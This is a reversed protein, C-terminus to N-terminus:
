GELLVKLTQKAEDIGAFDQGKELARELHDRARKSDGQKFYVMGLRYQALASGPAQETIKLLLNKANEYSGQRYAVLAATYMLDPNGTKTLPEALKAAHDLTANDNAQETLYRVLNNLAVASNPQQRYNEELIAIAKDHAGDQHYLAALDGALTTSASQAMGKKLIDIALATNKRNLHLAALNRYPNEWEPKIETAKSFAAVAEGNKNAAAFVGGLLNYAVFNRPNQKVTEQLVKLASDPKKLQLYVNVLQTLPEIADAQKDLAKAFSAAAEELKGEAQWALGSLYFGTAQEPHRQQLLTAVQRAKDWQRQALYLKFLAEYGKQSDPDLQLLSGIHQEARAAEGTKLLLEALELRASENAPQLQVIKELNELAPIPEQNLRHVTSLLSLVDIDNPRDALVERFDKIADTLRSEALALEGRLILADSQKPEIKLVSELLEAAQKGRGSNAYMRALRNRANIGQIGKPDADVIELLAQEAKDVLNQALYLNVLGFKLVFDRPREELLPILEAEAIEPGRKDALFDLLDLMAQQNDPLDIVADRLVSEAKDLENHEILFLALRKRHILPKPDIEIIAELMAEAKDFALAKVYLNVLMLRLSTDNPQDELHDNVFTIAKDLKGSKAHLSALLLVSPVDGPRKELAAEAKVIAADSNNQAALVGAELVLADPSESDITLAQKALIEAEAVRSALLYVQGLKVRSLVHKPDAAATKQYYDAAQQLDGLKASLEASQYLAEIQDPKLALAQTFAKRANAYDGAQSFQKGQELYENMKRETNDCATLAAFSLLFLLRASFGTLGVSKHPLSPIAVGADTGESSQHFPSRFPYQENM